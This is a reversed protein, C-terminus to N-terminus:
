SLAETCEREQPSGGGYNAVVAGQATAAVLALTAHVQALQVLFLGEQFGADPELKAFESLGDGILRQATAYHEACNM